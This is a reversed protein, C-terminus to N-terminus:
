GQLKYAERLWEALEPDIPTGAPLDLENHFRSKSVQESKVIRDGELRRALVLNLRLGEKRPHVGLFAAKGAVVHLSTKKEEMRYPGLVGLAEVLFSYAQAAAVRGEFLGPIEVTM